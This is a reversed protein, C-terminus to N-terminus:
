QKIFSRVDNDDQWHFRNGSKLTFDGSDSPLPPPTLPTSSSSVTDAGDGLM